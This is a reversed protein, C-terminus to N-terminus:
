LASFVLVFFGTVNQSLPATTSRKRSRLRALLGLVFKGEPSAISIKIQDFSQTGSAQGFIKTLDNM